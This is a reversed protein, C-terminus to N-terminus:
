PSPPITIHDYDDPYCEVIKSLREHTMDPDFENRLNTKFWEWTHAWDHTRLLRCAVKLLADYQNNVTEIGKQEIRNQLRAAETLKVSGESSTDDNLLLDGNMGTSGIDYDWYELHKLATQRGEDELISALLHAEVKDIQFIKSRRSKGGLIIIYDAQKYEWKKIDHGSLKVPRQIAGNEDMFVEYKGDGGVVGYIDSPVFHIGDQTFPEGMVKLINVSHLDDAEANAYPSVPHANYRYYDLVRESNSPPQERRHMPITETGEVALNVNTQDKLSQYKEFNDNNV